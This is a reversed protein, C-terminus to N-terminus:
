YYNKLPNFIIKLFNKILPQYGFVHGLEVHLGGPLLDCWHGGIKIVM